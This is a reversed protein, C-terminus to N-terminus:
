LKLYTNQIINDYHKTTSKLLYNEYPLDLKIGSNINKPVITLIIEDILNLQAFSNALKAGGLLWINENPHQIYFNSIFEKIGYKIFHIYKKDTNMIQSTFVYSKKDNWAWDGFSLIQEYSISGMIITSVNDLLKKYGMDDNQAPNPQPLWDVGGKEDAIFGDNSTAVYLIIKTM